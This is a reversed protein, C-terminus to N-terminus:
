MYPVASSKNAASVVLNGSYNLSNPSKTNSTRGAVILDQAVGVSGSVEGEIGVYRNLHVTVGAGLDYNGFSTRGTNKSETFFTGGGPIITVVVTGPGPAADQAYAQSTGALAVATFLAAIWRTM